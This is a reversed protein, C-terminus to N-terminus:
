IGLLSEMARSTHKCLLYKPKRIKTKKKKYTVKIEESNRRQFFLTQRCINHRIKSLAKQLISNWDIATSTQDIFFLHQKMVVVSFKKQLYAKSCIPIHTMKGLHSTVNNQRQSLHCVVDQDLIDVQGHCFCLGFVLRQWRKEENRRAKTTSRLETQEMWGDMLKVHGSLHAHLFHTKRISYQIYIVLLNISFLLIFFYVCVNSGLIIWLGPLNLNITVHNKHSSTINVNQLTRVPAM